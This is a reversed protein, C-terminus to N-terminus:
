NYFGGSHLTTLASRSDGLFNVGSAIVSGLIGGFTDGTVGHFGKGLIFSSGLTRTKVEWNSGIVSFENNATELRTIVDSESRDAEEIANLRTRLDTIQDTIDIIKKDLRIKIVRESQVTNKDFKYTVNLIGTEEDINFDSLTVRATNGPTIDFWGKIECEVGKFPDSNELEKKLIASATTPDVISKDNIVSEKKGFLLISERNQGFKVIPIDRDYQIIGSEGNSPISSYGVDTGSVFIIEKDHYSVLYNTGSVPEVTLEFVGGKQPVGTVELLTNRPKSLLTYASGGDFAIEEQFGTLVRDGYVHAYNVMGERTENLTSKNINTNDLVIGSNVNVRKKFNLDKNNDIYFFFGALKALEQLAKFMNTHNFAIRKLTTGTVDVNTVTIDSVNSNIIDTVISSIETDTFVEPDVTSDQLRLSFDRGSLTVTQTSEKGKFQIRELIGVLLTTTGDSDDAFIEVEQGVQFDTAHRGFPSDYIIQFTSSSNYDSTSKKVKMRQYDNFSVGDVEVKTSIKKTAAVAELLLNDGNEQLLNDGNELLIFDTM